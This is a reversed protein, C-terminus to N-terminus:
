HSSLGHADRPPWARFHGQGVDRSPGAHGARGGRENEASPIHPDGRCRGVPADLGRSRQAVVVDVATAAFPDLAHRDDGEDGVRDGRVVVAALHDAAGDLRGALAVVPDDRGVGLASAVELVVEHAPEDVAADVPEGVGRQGRANSPQTCQRHHGGCAWTSSPAASAADVSACRGVATTAIFSRTAM